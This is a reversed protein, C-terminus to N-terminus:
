TRNRGAASADPREAGLTRHQSAHPRSLGLEGFDVISLLPSSPINSMPVSTQGSSDYSKGWFANRESTSFNLGYQSVLDNPADDTIFNWLMNPTVAAWWDKSTVMAAPNWRSFVETPNAGSGSWNAPKVLYNFLAFQQKVGGLFEVWVCLEIFFNM